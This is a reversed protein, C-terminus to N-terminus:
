LPPHAGEDAASERGQKGTGLGRIRSRDAESGTNIFVSDPNCMSIANAVKVLVEPHTIRGIRDLSEPDLRAGLLSRAADVSRIGGIEVLIDVGKKKQFM